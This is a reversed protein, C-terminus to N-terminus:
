RHKGLSMKKTLAQNTEYVVSDFLGFRDLFQLASRLFSFGPGCSHLALANM